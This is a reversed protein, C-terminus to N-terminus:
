KKGSLANRIIADRDVVINKEVTVTRVVGVQTTSNGSGTGGVTLNNKATNNVTLNGGKASGGAAAVNTESIIAVPAAKQTVIDGGSPSTGVKANNNVANDVTLNSGKADGGIGANVQVIIGVPVAVQTTINPRAVRPRPFASANSISACVMLAACSLISFKGLM